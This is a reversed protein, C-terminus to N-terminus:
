DFGAGSGAALGHGASGVALIESGGVGGDRAGAIRAKDEFNQGPDEVNWSMDELNESTEEFNKGYFEVKGGYVEYQSRGNSASDSL